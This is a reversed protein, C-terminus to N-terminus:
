SYWVVCVRWMCVLWLVAGRYVYGCLYGVVVDSFSCYIFGVVGVDVRVVVGVYILSSVCGVVM